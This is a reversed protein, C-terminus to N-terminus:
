YYLSCLIGEGKENEKEREGYCVCVCVGADGERLEYVGPWLLTMPNSSALFSLKVYHVM